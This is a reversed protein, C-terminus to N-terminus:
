TTTLAPATEALSGNLNTVFFVLDHNIGDGPTAELTSDGQDKIQAWVTWTYTTARGTKFVIALTANDTTLSSDTNELKKNVTIDDIKIQQSLLGVMYTNDVTTLDIEERTGQLKLTVSNVNTLAASNFTVTLDKGDIVVTTKAM